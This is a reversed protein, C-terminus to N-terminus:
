KGSQLELILAHHTTGAFLKRKGWKL